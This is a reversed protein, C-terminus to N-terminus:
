RKILIPTVTVTPFVEKAIRELRKGERVNHKLNKEQFSKSRLHNFDAGKMFRCYTSFEVSSGSKIYWETVEIDDIYYSRMPANSVQLDILFDASTVYAKNRYVFGVDFKLDVGEFNPGHGPREERPYIDLDCFSEYVVDSPGDNWLRGHAILEPGEKLHAEYDDDIICRDYYIVKDSITRMYMTDIDYRLQCNGVHQISLLFFTILLYKRDAVMGQM